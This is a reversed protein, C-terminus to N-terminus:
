RKGTTKDIRQLPQTDTPKITQATDSVAALREARRRTKCPRSCSLCNGSDDVANLGGCSGAIPARGLAVGVAMGAVALLMIFFTTLFLTM